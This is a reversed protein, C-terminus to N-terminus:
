DVPVVTVSGFVKRHKKAHLDYFTLEGPNPAYVDCGVYEVQSSGSTRVIVRYRAKQGSASDIACLLALTFALFLAVVFLKFAAALKEHLM